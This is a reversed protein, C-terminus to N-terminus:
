HSTNEWPISSINTMICDRCLKSFGNFEFTTSTIESLKLREPTAMVTVEKVSTKANPTPAEVTLIKLAILFIFFMVDKEIKPKAQEWTTKYRKRLQFRSQRSKVIWMKQPKDRKPGFCFEGHFFRIKAKHLIGWFLHLQSHHYQHFTGVFHWFWLPLHCKSLKM